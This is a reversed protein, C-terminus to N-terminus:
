SYQSSTFFCPLPRNDIFSIARFAPKPEIPFLENNRVSFNPFKIVSPAISVLISSGDSTNDSFRHILFQWFHILEKVKSEINRKIYM